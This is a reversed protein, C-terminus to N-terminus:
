RTVELGHAGAGLRASPGQALVTRAEATQEGLLTGESVHDVGEVFHGHRRQAHLWHRQLKGVQFHQAFRSRVTFVPENERPALGTAGLFRWGGYYVAWSGVGVRADPADRAYCCLTDRLNKAKARM